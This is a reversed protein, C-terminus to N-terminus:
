KKQNEENKNRERVLRKDSEALERMHRKENLRLILKVNRVHKRMANNEQKVIRFKGQWLTIQENRHKRKAEMHERDENYLKLYIDVWNALEKKTQMSCTPYHGQVASCELCTGIEIKAKIGNGFFKM